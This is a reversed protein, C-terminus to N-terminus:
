MVEEIVRLVVQAVNSIGHVFQTHLHITYEDENFETQTICVYPIDVIFVGADGGQKDHCYFTVCTDGFDIWPDIKM